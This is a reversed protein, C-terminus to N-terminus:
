MRENMIRYFCKHTINKVGNERRLVIVGIIVDFIADQMNTSAAFYVNVSRANWQDNSTPIYTIQAM